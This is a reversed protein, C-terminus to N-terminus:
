RKFAPEVEIDVEMGQYEFADEGFARTVRQAELRHRRQRVFKVGGDGNTDSSPAWPPFCLICRLITIRLTGPPPKRARYTIDQSTKM